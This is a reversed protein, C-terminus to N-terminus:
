AVFRLSTDEETRRISTVEGSGAMGNNSEDIIQITFGSARHKYVAQPDMDEHVITVKLYLSHEAHFRAITSGSWFLQFDYKHAIRGIEMFDFYYPENTANLLDTCFEKSDALHKLAEYTEDRTHRIWSM